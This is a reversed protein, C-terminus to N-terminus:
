NELNAVLARECEGVWCIGLGRGRTVCVTGGEREQWSSGSFLRIVQGYWKDEHFNVPWLKSAQNFQERTLPPFKAVDTVFPLGLSATAIGNQELIHEISSSCFDMNRDEKLYLIIQLVSDSIWIFCQFLFFEYYM